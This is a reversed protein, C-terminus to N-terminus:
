NEEDSILFLKKQAALVAAQTRDNVGLKNFIHIVHSKVTHPSIFLKESIENNTRGAAVLQLVEKERNTLPPSGLAVDPLERAVPADTETVEAIPEGMDNQGTPDREITVTSVMRGQADHVPYVAYEYLPRAFDPCQDPIALGQRIAAAFAMCTPHGCKKCNSQPLLRLVDTVAVPRFKRYNPVIEDKRGYLDNIFGALRDFFALAHDKGEFPAALIDKRYLACGVGEFMLRVYEPQDHYRADPVAANIYPFVPQLDTELAFHAGWSTNRTLSVIGAKSLSITKYASLM